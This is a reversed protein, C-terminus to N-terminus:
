KGSKSLSKIFIKFAAWPGIHGEVLEKRKQNAERIRQQLIEIFDPHFAPLFVKEEATTQPIQKSVVFMNQRYWWEIKNNNWFVPRLIDYYTYGLKEFKKQWYAPDNENLHKHGGQGRIAASFIITDGLSALSKVFDDANEPPLHEAVELSIVLDFKRGLDLPKRLDHEIFNKEDIYLLKKNVYTGDIGTISVNNDAFVKLWSGIGCGVDVVSKPNFWKILVPVVESAAGTNHVETTHVYRIDDTVNEM